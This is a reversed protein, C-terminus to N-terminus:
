VRDPNIGFEYNFKDIDLKFYLEDLEDLNYEIHQLIKINYPMRAQEACILHKLIETEKNNLSLLLSM